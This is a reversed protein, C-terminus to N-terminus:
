RDYLLNKASALVLVEEIFGTAGRTPALVARIALCALGRLKLAVPRISFPAALALLNTEFVDALGGLAVEVPLSFNREAPGGGSRCRGSLKPAVQVLEAEGPCLTSSPAPLAVDYLRSDPPLVQAGAGEVGGTYKERKASSEGTAVM